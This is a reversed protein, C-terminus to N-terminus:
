AHVGAIHRCIHTIAAVFTRRNAHTEAARAEVAKAHGRGPAQEEEGAYGEGATAPHISQSYQVKTLYVM